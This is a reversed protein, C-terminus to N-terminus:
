RGVRVLDIDGGSMAETLAAALGDDVALLLEVREGGVTSESTAADVVYVGSAILRTEAPEGPRATSGYVDIRDGPDIRGLVARAREIEMALLDPATQLAPPRLLSAILPEGASISTVLTWDSLEGLEDGAVLGEPVAVRRVSIDLESLPTGAPLDGGAVLVPSMPAPRTLWLVLLAATAALGIGILTRADLRPFSGSGARLSVARV